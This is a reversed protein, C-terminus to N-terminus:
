RATMLLQDNDSLKTGIVARILEFEVSLTLRTGMMATYKLALKPLLRPEAKSLEALLKILKILLWNSRTDLMKFLTPITVLFLTPNIM